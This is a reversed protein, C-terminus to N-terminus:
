PSPMKVGAKAAAEPDIQRLSNTSCARVGVHRDGLAETLAAAVTSNGKGVNRLAEAAYSRVMGDEDEKLARVLAPIAPKAMPGMQWLIYAAYNRTTTDNAPARLHRRMSQPLKPWVQKRYVAAGIWADQKLAKALFMVASTDQILNRETSRALDTERARWRALWYSLPHENYVPEATQPPEWPSWWLLGGMAAVVLVGCVLYLRNKM